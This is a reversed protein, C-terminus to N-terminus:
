TNYIENSSTCFAITLYICSGRFFLPPCVSRKGRAGVFRGGRSCKRPTILIKRRLSLRSLCKFNSLPAASTNKTSGVSTSRQFNRLYSVLLCIRYEYFAGHMSAGCFFRRNPYLNTNTNFSTLFMCPCLSVCSCCMGCRTRFSAMVM